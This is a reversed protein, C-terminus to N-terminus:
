PTDDPGLASRVLVGMAHRASHMVELILSFDFCGVVNNGCLYFREKITSLSANLTYIM